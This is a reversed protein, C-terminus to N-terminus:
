VGSALNFDMRKIKQMLEPITIISLGLTIVAFVGTTMPAVKGGQQETSKHFAMYEAVVLLIALIKIFDWFKLGQYGDVFLKKLSEPVQDASPITFGILNALSVFFGRTLIIMEMVKSIILSITFLVLLKTILGVFDYGYLEMSINKAAKSGVGTLLKAAAGARLVTGALAIPVVM